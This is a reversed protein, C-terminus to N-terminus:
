DNLRTILNHEILVKVKRESLENAQYERKTKAWSQYLNRENKDVSGSKPMRSHLSIFELLMNIQNNWKLYGRESIEFFENMEIGLLELKKIREQSLKDKKFAQKQNNLWSYILKDNTVPIDNELYFKLRNCNDEWRQEDKEIKSLSFDIRALEDLKWQELPKRGKATQAYVQRQSQGWNYLEKELGSSEFKPWNGNQQKFLAIQNLAKRWNEEKIEKGKADFDFGISLLSDVQDKSLRNNKYTQRQSLLWSNLEKETTKTPLKGFREFYSKVREFKSEWSEYFRDLNLQRMKEMQSDSLKGNEYEKKNRNVWQYENYGIDFASISQHKEILTKVHYFKNEWEEVKGEFNFGISELSEKWYDSLEEDRSRERMQQCFVGIKKITTDESRPQPWANPHLERFAKLQEFRVLWKKEIAAGKFKANIEQFREIQDVSLISQNQIYGIQRNYWRVLEAGDFDKFPPFVNDLAYSAFVEFMREWENAVAAWVFNIENLKRVQESSLQNKNKRTRQQSVWGYLENNKEKKPYNNHQLLYTKLEYYWIDWNNSAKNIVQDFISKKLQEEFGRLILIDSEEQFGVIDITLKTNQRAGKAFAIQNIEDQLREDQECLARVVQLLNKFASEQVADEINNKETHYIPVVVYGMKKGQKKRLARGVAQVIDVKSNRPDCFYVLDIAPVDVGETLCRANAVLGQEANKFADLILNRHSTPQEGSVSFSEVQPNILAHREAFEKAYKIRSHFSLAHKAKYNEMVYDLAYNNAIEDISLNIDVFNSRQIYEQLEKDGVGVAIIQYDVLIDKEIADKFTMRHFEPGFVEPDNMDYAYKLDDGLKKKLSEKVIRPTATAYLRYKAPLAANNHVLSFQNNGIGATKHAEDCFVFDFEFTSGSIAEAIVNLSHYTSFLVSSGNTDDLFGKVVIPDTTVRTDVEYTHTIVADVAENDIDSESCVCLYQYSDAKQKQWENKIQRLLALSPVLVLTREANLEEKIWLATLTKGAGCPLILQGRDYGSNFNSVCADIAIQQHEFPRLKPIPKYENFAVLHYIAEFTQPDIELLNSVGYFSFNDKRTKTVKDVNAANSFVIYGHANSTFGFLNALKDTTWNLNSTEDNRFKCQVVYYSSNHDELILDVGYDQNGLNLVERVSAPAEEFLWVNKFNDKETPSALFYYKTFEEFIKGASSDYKGSDTDRVNYTNSLEEKLQSWQSKNAMLELLISKYKSM